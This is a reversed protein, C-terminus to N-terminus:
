TSLPGPLQRRWATAAKAFSLIFAQALILDPKRIAESIGRGAGTQSIWGRLRSDNWRSRGKSRVEWGM